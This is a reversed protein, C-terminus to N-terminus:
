KYIMQDLISEDILVVGPRGEGTNGQQGSYGTPIQIMANSSLDVIWNLSPSWGKYGWMYTALDLQDAPPPTADYWDKPAACDIIMLRGVFYPKPNKPDDIGFIYKTKWLDKPGRTAGFGIVKGTKKAEEPTMDSQKQIYNDDVFKNAAEISIGKRNKIVTAVIGHESGYHSAWGLGKDMPTNYLQTIQCGQVTGGPCGVEGYDHVMAAIKDYSLVKGPTPTPTPTSTATPIPTPTATPTATPKVTPSPPNITPTPTPTLSPSLTPTVAPTALTIEDDKANNSLSYFALSYDVVDTIGDSNLDTTADQSALKGLNKMIASMDSADVKGNSPPTDGTLFMQGTLDVTTGSFPLLIQPVTCSPGTVRASCFLKGLHKEPKIFLAYTESYKFDNKLTLDGAFMGNQYILTVQPETSVKTSGTYFDIRANLKDGAKREGQVKIKFSITQSTARTALPVFVVVAAFVILTFMLLVTIFTIRILRNRSAIEADM